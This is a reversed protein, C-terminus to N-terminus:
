KRHGGAAPKRAPEALGKLVEGDSFVMNFSDPTATYESPAGEITLEAGPKPIRAEALPEKLKLTIDAKKAAIDDLNGALQLSDPGAEIVDAVLQVQKGKIATWVQGASDKSGNALIFQWDAFSLKDPPNKKLLEAAQDAPSPAPAVTFGAPIAANSKAEAMLADFGDDSGHYRVYQNKAYPLLQPAANAAKAIWFLGDVAPPKAELYSLALLYISNVDNPQLAVVQKLDKQATAYDKAQLAANGESGLFIVRFSAKMSEWQADTYGEPKPASQLADLGRTGLKGAEQLSAAADAGGTQSEARDLYSLLALATLNKPDVELLRQAAAKIQASNNLQQYAKLLVELGEEKVVSNPYTQLFSEMMQARKTADATNIAAVYANYEEPNQIVKKQQAPQQAPAATAPAPQQAAPAAQAQAAVSASVLLLVMLFQKM